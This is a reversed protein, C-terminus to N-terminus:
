GLSKIGKEQLNNVGSDCTSNRGGGRHLRRESRGEVSMRGVGIAVKVTAAESGGCCGICRCGVQPRGHKHRRFIQFHVQIDIPQVGVRADNLQYSPAGAATNCEGRDQHIYGEEEEEEVEEEETPMM